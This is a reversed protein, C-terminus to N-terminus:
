SLITRNVIATWGTGVATVSVKIAGTTIAASITHTVVWNTQPGTSTVLTTPSTIAVYLVSIQNAGSINTTVVEYKVAKITGLTISDVVVPTANTLATTTQATESLSYLSHTHVDLTDLADQVTSDTPGLIKVFGSTTVPLFSAHALSFDVSLHDLGDVYISTGDIKDQLYEGVDLGTVKVKYTDLSGPPLQATPVYGSADLGAYGNAVGKASLLQYNNPNFTGAHWINNDLITARNNYVKLTAVGMSVLGLHESSITRDFYLGIRAADTHAAIDPSGQALPAAISLDASTGLKDTRLGLAALFSANM